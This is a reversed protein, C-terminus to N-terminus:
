PDDGVIVGDEARWGITVEGSGPLAAGRGAPHHAYFDHRGLAPVELEYAAYAGRFAVTRVRAPFHNALMAAAAGLQVREPRLSLVIDAGVPAVPLAISTRHDPGALMTAGDGARGAIINSTGLFTSVFRTAPHEYIEGPAGIQAIRGARMVAIRDSMSLAEEQDHTVLLSTIGLRQQLSRLEFQMSERLNKDLAGLPEDLLLIQPAAVLSRALAVRQQQGGSIQRPFRDALPALQVLDLMTRVRADREARAVGQMRLGFAVNQAVTMHPFLSYNQFVMGLRRRRPRMRTVDRGAILVRGADPAEFGAIMRLTTTKGCGSPGLLALMEGGPLDLDLPHVAIAAGFRKSVGRLALSAANATGTRTIVM